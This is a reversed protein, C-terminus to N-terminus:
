NKKKFVFTAGALLIALLMSGQGIIVSGCSSAPKKNEDLEEIIQYVNDVESRYVTNKDGESIFRMNVFSIRTEADSHYPYSDPEFLYAILYADYNNLTVAYAGNEFVYDEEEGLYVEGVLNAYQKLKLTAGNKLKTYSIGQKDLVALIKDLNKNEASIVYATPMARVNNVTDLFSFSKTSTQNKYTGDVYLYPRPMSITTSGSASLKTAFLRNEDFTTIKSVRERAEYVENAIAGDYSVFEGILAKLAEKMAFVSRAYRAKGTSIRMTEIIFSYSGKIKPYDKSQAPHANAVYYVSSRLGLARVDEIANVMINYGKDKKADFSGLSVTELPSNQISSARICVDDMNEISLDAGDATLKGYDEHCDIYLTPMFANYVAIQNKTSDLTVEMLDRNPNVGSTSNRKFRQFNDVCISPMMVIAGFSDLVSDGYEGSLEKALALVGEVGTPENGHVGGGIMLIERVGGEKVIKAIGNFDTGNPVNDKTFVLVPTQNKLVTEEFPYFVYLNDCEKDLNDVYECVDKNKMFEREDEYKTFTPTDFPEFGVLDDTGVFELVEDTQQVVTNEMNNREEFPKIGCDYIQEEVDGSVYFYKLLYDTAGNYYVKYYYIGPNVSVTAYPIGNEVHKEPSLKVTDGAGSIGKYIVINPQTKDKGLPNYYNVRINVTRTDEEKITEYGTISFSKVYIGTAEGENTGNATVLLLIKNLNDGGETKTTITKTFTYWGDKLEGQPDGKTTCVGVDGFGNTSRLLINSGWNTITPKVYNDTFKYTLSITYEKGPTLGKSLWFNVHVYAKEKKSTTSILLNNQAGDKVVETKGENDTSFQQNVSAFGGLLDDQNTLLGKKSSGIVETATLGNFNTTATRLEETDAFGSFSTLNIAFLTTSLVLLVSFVAILKKMLYEGKM